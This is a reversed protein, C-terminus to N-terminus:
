RDRVVVQEQAASTWELDIEIPIIRSSGSKRTLRPNSEFAIRVGRRWRRIRWIIALTAVFRPLGRPGIFNAALWGVSGKTESREAVLLMM